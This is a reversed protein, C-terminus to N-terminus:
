QLFTVTNVILLSVVTFLIFISNLIIYYRQFSLRLTIIKSLSPMREELSLKDIIYNGLVAYIISITCTLIVVSSSINIILCLEVLSLSNLFVKYESILNLIENFLQSM